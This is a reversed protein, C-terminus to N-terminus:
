RSQSPLALLRRRVEANALEYAEDKSAAVFVACRPAPGGGGGIVPDIAVVDVISLWGNDAKQISLNFTVKM